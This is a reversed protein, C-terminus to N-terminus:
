TVSSLDTSGVLASAFTMLFDSLGLDIRKPGDVLIEVLPGTLRGHDGTDGLMGDISRSSASSSEKGEDKGPGVECTELIELSVLSELLVKDEGLELSEDGRGLDL